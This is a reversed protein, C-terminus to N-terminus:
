LELMKEALALGEADGVHLWAGDHIVARIRSLNQNYLLNLSYAGDPSNAFLRPHIKQVGTFVYPASAAEGKRTLYGNEDCFFDGAGHYGVAKERPQLLLLADMADDDWATDLKQLPHQIHPLTIADSNMAYYAGGGLLPLAKAMGGGTELPTEEHSLQIHPFDKDKLHAIMLDALYSVNIVVHDVGGECLFDLGHDILAKGAVRILPKPTRDTLPRMRLGLGAAFIMASKPM